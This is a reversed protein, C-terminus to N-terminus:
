QNRQPFKWVDLVHVEKTREHVRYIVGLPAVILIRRGRARSEGEQEPLKSLLREIEDFADVAPGIPTTESWIKELKKYADVDWVIDYRM